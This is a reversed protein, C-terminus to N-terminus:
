SYQPNYLASSFDARFQNPTSYYKNIAMQM